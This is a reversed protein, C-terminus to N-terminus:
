LLYLYYNTVTGKAILPTIEPDSIDLYYLGNVCDKFRYEKEKYFHVLMTHDEKTDITVCLSNEM